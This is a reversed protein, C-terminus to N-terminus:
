YCGLEVRVADPDELVCIGLKSKVAQALFYSYILFQQDLVIPSRLPQGALFHIIHILESGLKFGKPFAKQGIVLSLIQVRFLHSM